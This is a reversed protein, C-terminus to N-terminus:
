QWNNQPQYNQYQQQVPNQQVPQMDEPVVLYSLRCKNITKQSGDKGTFTEDRHNFMGKGCKGIWSQYQFNGRQIRFADFLRTCNRNFYEGEVINEVYPHTPCECVAYSVELMRKGNKSVKEMVGTIKMDHIGDAVDFFTAGYDEQRYDEIFM